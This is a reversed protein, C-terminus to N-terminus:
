DDKVGVFFLVLATAIILKFEKIYNNMDRTYVNMDTKSDIGDLSFWLCFSFITAAFIIIGGITPVIRKHIKRGGPEDFLRKLIAVKILPPTCYLVVLFSTVFVLGLVLANM